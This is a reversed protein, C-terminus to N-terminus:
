QASLLELVFKISVTLTNINSFYNSSELIISYTNYLIESYISTETKDWLEFVMFYTYTEPSHSYFTFFTYMLTCM